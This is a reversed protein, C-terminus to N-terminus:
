FDFRKSYGFTELLWVGNISSLSLDRLAATLSGGGPTM